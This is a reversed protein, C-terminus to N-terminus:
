KIKELDVRLEELRTKAPTLLDEELHRNLIKRYSGYNTVGQNTSKYFERWEIHKNLSQMMVNIDGIKASFDVSYPDFSGHLYATESYSTILLFLPMAVEKSEISEDDAKLIRLNFGIIRINSIAEQDVSRKARILETQQDERSKLYDLGRTLLAGIIVCGVAVVTRNRLLRLGAGLIPRTALRLKTIATLTQGHLFALRPELTRRAAPGLRKATEWNPRIAVLTGSAVLVFSDHSVM